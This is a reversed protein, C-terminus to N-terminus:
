PSLTIKSYLILTPFSRILGYWNRAEICSINLVKSLTDHIRRVIIVHQQLM